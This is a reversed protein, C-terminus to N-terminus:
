PLNGTCYNVLLFVTGTCVPLHHIVAGHYLLQPTYYTSFEPVFREVYRNQLLVEEGILDPFPTCSLYSESIETRFIEDNTDVNVDVHIRQAVTYIAGKDVKLNSPCDRNCTSVKCLGISVDRKM